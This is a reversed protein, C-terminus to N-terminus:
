YELVSQGRMLSKWGPYCQGFSKPTYVGGISFRNELHHGAIRHAHDMDYAKIKIPEDDDHSTQNSLWAYFIKKTPKKATKKVSKKKM